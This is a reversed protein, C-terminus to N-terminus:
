YQVTERAQDVSLEETIGSRSEDLIGIKQAEEDVYIVVDNGSLRDSYTNNILAEAEEATKGGLDVEGVYVGPYVKGYFIIFDFLGIICVALLIIVTWRILKNRKCWAIIFLVIEKILFFLSYFILTLLRALLILIKFGFSYDSLKQSFAWTRKLGYTFESEKNLNVNQM